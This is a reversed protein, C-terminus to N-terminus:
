EVPVIEFTVHTAKKDDVKCRITLQENGRIFIFEDASRKQAFQWGLNPLVDKYFSAVEVTSADTIFYNILVRGEPKDFVVTEGIQGFGEMLPLDETGPVYLTKAQLNLCLWVM